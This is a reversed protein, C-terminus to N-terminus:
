RLREFIQISKLAFKAAANVNVGENARPAFAVFSVDEISRFDFTIEGTQWIESSIEPCNWRERYPSFGNKPDSVSTTGYEPFRARLGLRSSPLVPNTREETQEASWQSPPIRYSRNAKERILPIVFVVISRPDGSIMKFDFKVIGSIIDVYKNCGLRAKSKAEVVYIRNNDKAPGASDSVGPIVKAFSVWNAFPATETDSDYIRTLTTRVEASPEVIYSPNPFFPMDAIDANLQRPTHIEPRVANMGHKSWILKEVAGSIERLSVLAPKAKIGERLVSLLAESLMTFKGGDPAIAPDDKSSAALLATGIKPLSAFTQAEVLNSLDDGMFEKMAAGSFCCDLILFVQADRAFERLTESFDRLKLSTYNRRKPDTNRLYLCYQRDALFSGHGVYYIIISKPRKRELIGIIFRDQKEPSGDNGFLNLVSEVPLALGNQESIFYEYMANASNRFATKWFHKEWLPFEESGMIIAVTESM